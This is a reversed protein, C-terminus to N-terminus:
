EPDRFSQYVRVLEEKQPLLQNRIARQSFWFIVRDLVFYSLSAVFAESVPMLGWVFCLYGIAIPALYWWSVNRLLRVQYDLHAIEAKLFEQVSLEPLVRHRRRGFHLSLAISTAAVCSFLAGFRTLWPMGSFVIPWFVVFVIVCAVTERVDRMDISRRSQMVNQHVQHMDAEEHLPDDDLTELKARLDDLNM